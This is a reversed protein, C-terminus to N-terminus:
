MEKTKMLPSSTTRGNSEKQARLLLRLTFAQWAFWALNMGFFFNANGTEYTLWLEYSATNLALCTTFALALAMKGPINELIRRPLM